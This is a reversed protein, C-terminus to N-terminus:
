KLSFVSEFRGARNKRTEETKETQTWNPKKLKLSIFSFGFWVSGTPKKFIRILESPKKWLKTKEIIKKIKKIKKSV